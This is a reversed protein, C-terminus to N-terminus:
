GPDAEEGIPEAGESGEPGEVGMRACMLRISIRYSFSKIVSSLISTYFPENWHYINITDGKEKM